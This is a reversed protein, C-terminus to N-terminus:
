NIDEDSLFENAARSEYDNLMMNLHEQRQMNKLKYENLAMELSEIMCGHQQKMNQIKRKYFSIIMEREIEYGKLDDVLKREFEEATVWLEGQLLM